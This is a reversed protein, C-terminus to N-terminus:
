ILVNIQKKEGKCFLGTAPHVLDALLRGNSPLAM